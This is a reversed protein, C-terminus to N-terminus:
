AAGTGGCSTGIWRSAAAWGMVRTLGRGEKLAPRAKGEKAGGVAAAKPEKVVQGSEEAGGHAAALGAVVGRKKGRAKPLPSKVGTGCVAPFHIPHPRMSRGVRGPPVMQPWRQAM